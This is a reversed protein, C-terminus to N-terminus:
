STMLPSFGAEDLILGVQEVIDTLLPTRLGASLVGVRKTRVASMWSAAVNIRYGLEDAAQQVRRRKDEGVWREGRLVLSVLSKSVGAREAVDRMTPRRETGGADSM